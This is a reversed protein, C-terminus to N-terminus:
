RQPGTGVYRGRFLRLANLARDNARPCRLVRGYAAVVLADARPSGLPAVITGRPVARQLAVLQGIFEGSVRSHYQIVIIGRRLAAGLASAKLATPYSAPAAADTRLGAGSLSASRGLRRLRCHSDHVADLLAIEQVPPLIVPARPRRGEGDQLLALAAVTVVAGAALWRLAYALRRAVSGLPQPEGPGMASSGPTM